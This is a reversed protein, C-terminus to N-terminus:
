LNVRNGLKEGHKPLLWQPSLPVENEPGLKEVLDSFFCILVVSRFVSLFLVFFILDLTLLNKMQWIGANPFQQQVTFFNNGGGEKVTM